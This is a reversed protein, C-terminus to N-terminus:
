ALIPIFGHNKFSYIYFFDQNKDYLRFSYDTPHMYLSTLQAKFIFDDHSLIPILHDDRNTSLSLKSPIFPPYIPSSLFVPDKMVDYRKKPPPPTAHTHDPDNLPTPVKSIDHEIKTQEMQELSNTPTPESTDIFFIPSDNLLPQSSQQLRNM